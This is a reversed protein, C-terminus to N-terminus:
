VFGSRFDSTQMGPRGRSTPGEADPRRCRRRPRSASIFHSTQTTNVQCYPLRTCSCRRPPMAPPPRTSRRISQSQDTVSVAADDDDDAAADYDTAADAAFCDGAVRVAVEADAHEDVYVHCIGESCDTLMPSRPQPKPTLHQSHLLVPTRTPPPPPPSTNTPWSVYKTYFGGFVVWRHGMVPIKTNDSIHKVLAASGRPIVLDIHQSPPTMNTVHSPISKQPV